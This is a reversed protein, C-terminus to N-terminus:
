SSRTKEREASRTNKLPAPGRPLNITVCAAQMLALALVALGTSLQRPSVM